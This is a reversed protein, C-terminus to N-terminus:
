YQQKMGQIKLGPTFAGPSKTNIIPGASFDVVKKYQPRKM